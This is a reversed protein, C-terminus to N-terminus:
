ITIHMYLSTIYLTIIITNTNTNLQAITNYKPYKIYNHAMYWFQAPEGNRAMHQGWSPSERMLALTIEHQLGLGNTTMRLRCETLAWFCHWTIVEHRYDTPYARVHRYLVSIWVLISIGSVSSQWEQGAPVLCNGNYTAVDRAASSTFGNRWNPETPPYLATNQALTCENTLKNILFSLKYSTIALNILVEIFIVITLKWRGTQQELLSDLIERM